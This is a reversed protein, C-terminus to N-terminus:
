LIDHKPIVNYSVIEDLKSIAESGVRQVTCIDYIMKKSIDRWKMGDIYRYKLVARYRSDDLRDILRGAEAKMDIYEDIKKDIKESLDIMRIAANEVRSSISGSQVRVDSPDVTIQLVIDLTRNREAILLDIERDIERIRELYEKATM